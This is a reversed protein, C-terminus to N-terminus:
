AETPQVTVDEHALTASQKAHAVLVACQAHTTVKTSTSGVLFRSAANLGRSGLIILDIDHNEAATLIMDAPDGVAIQKEITPGVGAAQLQRMSEDLLAMSSARETPMDYMEAAVGGRGYIVHQPIVHFLTVSAQKGALLDRAFELAHISSSSGDIAILVNFM